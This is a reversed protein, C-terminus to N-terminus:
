RPFAEKIGTPQEWVGRPSLGKEKLSPCERRLHGVEGCQWCQYQKSTDKGRQGETYQGRELLYKGQRPEREWQIFVWDERSKPLYTYSECCGGLGEGAGGLCRDSAASIQTAM